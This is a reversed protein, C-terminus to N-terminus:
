MGYKDGTLNPLVKAFTTFLGGESPTPPPNQTLVQM